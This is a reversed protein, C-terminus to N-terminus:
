YRDPIIKETTVEMLMSKCGPFATGEARESLFGDACWGCTYPVVYGNEGLVRPVSDSGENHVHKNHHLHLQYSM